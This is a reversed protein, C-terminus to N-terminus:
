SYFLGRERLLEFDARGFMRRKLMGVRIVHGEVVGSHWPQSLGATVTVLDRELSTVPPASM